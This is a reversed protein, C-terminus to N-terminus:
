TTMLVSNESNGINGFVSTDEGRATLQLAVSLSDSKGQSRRQSRACSKREREREGAAVGRDIAAVRVSRRKTQPSKIERM